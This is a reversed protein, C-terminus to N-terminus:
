SRLSTCPARAAAVSGYVVDPQSQEPLSAVVSALTVKVPSSTATHTTTNLSLGAGAVVTVVLWVEVLRGWTDDVLRGGEPSAGHCGAM